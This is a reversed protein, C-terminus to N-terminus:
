PPTFTTGQLLDRATLLAVLEVGLNELTAWSGEERDVVCVARDVAAGEARLREIARALTGATTVTDEVFVVREGPHLEGEVVSRTGHEKPQKRVMLFPIGTALSAATALPIAGLEVGAIRQYGVLHPAMAKALAGLIKPETVARRLDVYYSSEKGSALTFHGFKLAGCGQLMAVLDDRM